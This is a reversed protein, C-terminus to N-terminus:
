NKSNKPILKLFADDLSMKTIEIDKVIINKAKFYQLLLELVKAPNDCEIELKKTNENRYGVINTNSIDVNTYNKNSINNQIIFSELEREINVFQKFLVLSIKSRNQISNKIENPTGESIVQGKNIITARHCLEEIEDLYHSTYIITCGNSNLKRVTELVTERSIPDLSATPEDMILLKPRHVLSCAINLRRKMGGSFSDPFANKYQILDVFNLAEDVRTKIIQRNVGYLKGFFAINEKAKLDDYISYEQPVVGITKQILKKDKKIDIGMIKCSGQDFGILGSLINIMTSKGSGNPGLLGYIMGEEISINVGKLAVNKGYSKRLDNIEVISM